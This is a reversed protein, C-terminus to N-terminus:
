ATCLLIQVSTACVQLIIVKNNHLKIIFILSLDKTQGIHFKVAFFLFNM